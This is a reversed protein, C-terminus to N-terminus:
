DRTLIMSRILLNNKKKDAIYKNNLDKERKDEVIFANNFEEILKESLDSTGTM